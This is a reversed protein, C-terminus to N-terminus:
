IIPISYEFWRRWVISCSFIREHQLKLKAAHDLTSQANGYWYTHMSNASTKVLEDLRAFIKHTDDGWVCAGKVFHPRNDHLLRWAIRGASRSTKRRAYCVRCRFGLDYLVRFAM